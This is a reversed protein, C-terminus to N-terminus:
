RGLIRGNRDTQIALIGSLTNGAIVVEVQHTITGPGQAVAGPATSPAAMRPSAAAAGGGTSVGGGGSTPNLANNAIAGLSASLILLAAGAAIATYPNSFSLKIGLMGVGIAIAAEGLQKCVQAIVNLLGGGFQEATISGNALNGIGAFFTSGLEALGSGLISNAQENFAALQGYIPEFATQLQAPATKLGELLKPLGADKEPTELKFEPIQFLKEVGKAVRGKIEDLAQPVGNLQRVYEQVVKGGPAFGVDTLNKIGSSLASAKGGIFDYAPGLARSANENDRLAQELKQLAQVQDDTLASVGPLLLGFSDVAAGFDGVAGAVGDFGNNLPKFAADFSGKLGLLEANTKKTFGFVNALPDILGFLARKAEELSGVFDGKFLKVVTGIVGGVVDSIATIGVAIERFVFACTNGVSILDGLTGGGINAISKLATGIVEASDKVSAALNSFVRGGEGTPQFYAVIKDWNAVILVAAAAVGAAILGVPGGLLLLGAELTPLAAAVSGIAFLLPGISAAAVAIGVGFKLIAPDATAISTAITSGIQALQTAADLIGADAIAQAAGEAASKFAEFSGVFGKSLIAGQAAADVKAISAAMKDFGEAGDKALLLATRIADTGFIKTGLTNKQEDSLGKFAQQLQGAIDRLPRMKGQADFFKLGLQKMANAAEASQPVLRQLFTKFSTGADQGSSFGSSTVGLAINFDELAVGLQGAVSGAQGLALRYDDISFKSAITTGTINSVLGPLENAKRNFNNLVDTAIDAATALNGGTATALATTADVAGGLIDATSAGNKALNELAESAQVSSFKLNPDLAIGQAKKRLAELETGSAQTAAEVRNFASQFDGGVKIAAGGLLALPASIYTTLSSGIDKMAEGAQVLGKLERRAEAM